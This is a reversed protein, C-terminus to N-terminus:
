TSSTISMPSVILPRATLASPLTATAEILPITEICSAREYPQDNASESGPRVPAKRNAQPERRGRCVCRRGQQCRGGEIWLVVLAM